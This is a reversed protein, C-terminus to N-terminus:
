TPVFPTRRSRALHARRARLHRWGRLLVSLLPSTVPALTLPIVVTAVADTGDAFRAKYSEDGRLFRYQSMGDDFACRITHALLVFGVSAPEWAPDRGSQFFSEVGAFRFGYWAAVTAGDATLAWLRLWGEDAARQAWAQHFRQREPTFTNSEAADFRLRHLRFVEDLLVRVGSGSGPDAGSRPDAGSGPDDGPPWGTLEVEHDRGLKRERRRVQQRFNRSSAALVEEWGGPPRERTPCTEAHLVHAGLGAWEPGLAPEGDPDVGTPVLDAVVVDVDLQGETRARALAAVAAPRDAPAAVLSLEDGCGHGLARALRVPGVRRRYLLWLAVLSGGSGAGGGGGAGAGVGVGAGAGDGAGSRCALLRPEGRGFHHWWTGIFQPTAFVNQARQALAAWEEWREDGPVPLTDWRELTLAPATDMVM